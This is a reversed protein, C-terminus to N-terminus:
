TLAALVAPLLAYVDGVIGYDAAQFVPAAADPNIALVARSHSAGQMHQPQGSIGAAIYLEPAPSQGSQGVLYGASIGAADIVARTAAAAGGLTEALPHILTEFGNQVRWAFPNPHDPPPPAPNYALGKGGAVIVAAHALPPPVADPTFNTVTVGPPPTDDLVGLDHLLAVVQGVLEDPTGALLTCQRSIEPVTPASFPAFPDLTLPAADPLLGVLVPPAAVVRRVGGRVRQYAHLGDDHVGAVRLVRPLRAWAPPTEIRHYATQTVFVVDAGPLTDPLPTIEAGFQRAATQLLARNAPSSDLPTILVATQM